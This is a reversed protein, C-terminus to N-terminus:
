ESRMAVHSEVETFLGRLAEFSDIVALCVAVVAGATAQPLRAIAGVIRKLNQVRATMLCQETLNRLGRRRARRLGMQEKAEAFLHEIRKRCRQSIRYGVTDRLAEARDLYDPDGHRHAV